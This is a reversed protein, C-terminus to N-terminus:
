STILTVTPVLACNNNLNRIKFNSLKVNVIYMASLLYQCSRRQSLTLMKYRVYEYFLPLALFDTEYVLALQLECMMGIEDLILCVSKGEWEAKHAIKQKGM